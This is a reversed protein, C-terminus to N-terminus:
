SMNLTPPMKAPPGWMPVQARTRSRGRVQQPCSDKNRLSETKLYLKIEITRELQFLGDYNFALFAELFKMGPDEGM